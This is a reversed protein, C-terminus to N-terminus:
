LECLNRWHFCMTQHKPPMQASVQCKYSNSPLLTVGLPINFLLLWIDAFLAVCPGITVFEWVDLLVESNIFLCRRSRWKTLTVTTCLVLRFMLWCPCMSTYKGRAKVHLVMTVPSSGSLGMKFFFVGDLCKMLPSSRQCSDYIWGSVLGGWVCLSDKFLFPSPHCEVFRNIMEMFTERRGLPFVRASHMCEHIPSTM